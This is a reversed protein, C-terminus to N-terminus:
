SSAGIVEGGDLSIEYVVTRTAPHQCAPRGPNLALHAPVVGRVTPAGSFGAGVPPFAQHGVV